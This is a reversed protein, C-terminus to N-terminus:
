VTVLPKLYLKLHPNGDGGASAMPEGHCPTRHPRGGPCLALCHLSVLRYTQVYKHQKINLNYSM